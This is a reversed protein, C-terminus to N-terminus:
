KQRPYGALQELMRAYVIQGREFNALRYFENPSHAREDFLGFGLMITHANLEQLFMATIPLSGGIRTYYPPRQYVEALM